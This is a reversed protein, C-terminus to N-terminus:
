KVGSVIRGMYLRKARHTIRGVSSMEGWLRNAGRVHPLVDTFLNAMRRSTYHLTFRRHPSIDM